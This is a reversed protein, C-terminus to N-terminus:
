PITKSSMNSLDSEAGVTNYAKVAFYYTGSTLNEVVHVTTGPNPIQVVQTLNAANTGYMVRYGALNTLPTGDVNQTPPTWSVTANGVGIQNVAIAFAPLSTTAIGDSVRITINAYTGVYAATPTGQLRGTSTSFTAWAPMNTISFTLANGNADAATPTFSYANGAIVAPPPTGSITPAVNASTVNISFAPLSTTAIGDSVRITINAYSGVNSTTPTGSLRGTTTNFTAWSPSNLISFTLANGNADAASPTFSYTSGAVVSTSPSGSITPATNGTAASVRITFSPLWSGGSADYARISVNYATGVATPTGSLQGTAKNFTAWSPKNWIGFSIADGNADIATPTFSYPSGVVATTAPSGSITPPTNGSAASIRISFSPLWSGGSADYARISVNYATGTATPTGSLQGTAKNFTAWAPKNWIGFSIVDGDADSATPTFSYPTGVVATTPPTGSITPVAAVTTGSVFAAVLVFISLSLWSAFPNVKRAYVRSEIQM